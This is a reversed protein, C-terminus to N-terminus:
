FWEKLQRLTKDKGLHGGAVGEHLSQLIETRLGEPVVLQLYNPKDATHIYQQYPVGNAM